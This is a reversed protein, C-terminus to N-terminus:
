TKIENFKKSRNAVYKYAMKVSRNKSESFHIDELIDQLVKRAKKFNKSPTKEEADLMMATDIELENWFNWERYAIPKNKAFKEYKPRKPEFWTTMIPDVDIIYPYQDTEGYKAGCMVQSNKFDRWFTENELYSDKFHSFLGAYMEDVEGELEKPVATMNYLNTNGSIRETIAFIADIGTEPDKGIVYDTKAIHLHYREGMKQFEGVSKIMQEIIKKRKLEKREKENLKKYEPADLENRVRQYLSDPLYCKRAILEPHGPVDYFDASVGIIDHSRELRVFPSKDDSKLAAINEERKSEMGANYWFVARKSLRSKYGRNKNWIM